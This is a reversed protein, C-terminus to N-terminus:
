RHCAACDEAAGEHRHCSLCTTMTLRVPAVGLPSRRERMAGHCSACDLRGLTTHRRHSFMVHQPVDTVQVWAISKRTVAADWTGTTGAPATAHCKTCLTVDPIGAKAETTAGRHCVACGITQHKAHPFAIPQRVPAPPLAAVWAAAVVGTVIAAGLYRTV